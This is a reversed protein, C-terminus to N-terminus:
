ALDRTFRESAWRRLLKGKVNGCIHLIASFIRTQRPLTKQLPRKLTLATFAWQVPKFLRRRNKRRDIFLGGYKGPQMSGAPSFKKKTKENWRGFISKGALNVWVDIHPLEQEPAADETLWQVYTINKQETKGANRSLIYVHHGQRTLVGTLHTGLFGTGGTMAINM